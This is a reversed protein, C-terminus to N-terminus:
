LQVRRLRLNTGFFEPDNLEGNPEAHIGGGEEYCMFSRLVLNRLTGDSCDSARGRALLDSLLTEQTVSELLAEAADNEEPTFRTLPVLEEAQEDVTIEGGIRQQPDQLLLAVLDVLDPVYPVSIGLLCHLNQQVWGDVAQVHAGLAPELVERVPEAVGVLEGSPRFGQRVQEDLFVRDLSIVEAALATYFADTKRFISHIRALQKLPEGKAKDMHEEVEKLHQGEREMRQQIHVNAENLTPAIEAGYNVSRIDRSLVSTARLLRERYLITVKLSEEANQGADGYRGRKMYYDHAGDKAAQEAEIDIELASLYINIAPPEAYFVPEGSASERMRILSYKLPVWRMTGDAEQVQYRVQFAERERENTLADLAYSAIRDAESESCEPRSALLSPRVARLITEYPAGRNVTGMEVIICDLIVLAVRRLDYPALDLGAHGKGGQLAYFPRAIAMHKARRNIADREFGSNGLPQM